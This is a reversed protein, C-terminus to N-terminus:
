GRPGGTPTNQRYTPSRSARQGYGATTSSTPSWGNTGTTTRDSGPSCSVPARGSTSRRVKQQVWATVDESSRQGTGSGPRSVHLRRVVVPSDSSGPSRKRCDALTAPVAILGARGPARGAGGAEAAGLVCYSEAMLEAVEEWDTNEDVAMGVVDRGWGLRRFPYGGAVLAEVEDVPARFTITCTTTAAPEVARPAGPDEAIGLLHAFTRKRVRWRVGVWAPEEYADPLALCIPRLRDEIQPPPDRYASVIM